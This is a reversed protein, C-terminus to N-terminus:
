CRRIIMATAAGGGNCIAACGIQGSKLRHILSVVIRAGSSGIPHGLSVAGGAINVLQRDLGLIKENAISVVSFAENIEFLNIQDLTLGARKLAEPIALSPATTFEKPACAADAYSLIYAMPSANLEKARDETMLMVASAGDNLTSANAATVTGDKKFVPRLKPVKEFDVKLYEEDTDIVKNKLSLSVVEDKFWGNQWASASRKYSEIAFKDQDERTIGYKVATEEACVGM